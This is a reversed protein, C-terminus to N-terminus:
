KKVGNQEESKKRGSKKTPRGRGTAEAFGNELFCCPTIM